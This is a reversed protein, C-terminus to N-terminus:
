RTSSISRDWILNAQRPSLESERGSLGSVLEVQKGATHVLSTLLLKFYEDIMAIVLKCGDPQPDLYFVNRKHCILIIKQTDM